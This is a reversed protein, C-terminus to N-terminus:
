LQVKPIALIFFPFQFLVPKIEIIGPTFRLWFAVAAAFVIMLFDAPVLIAAFFLESKKM